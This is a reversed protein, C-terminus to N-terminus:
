VGLDFMDSFSIQDTDPLEDLLGLGSMLQVITDSVKCSRKFDDKSLFKKKSATDEIMEAAKEGLGQLTVLSPMLAGDVITFHRAKARYIDIPVFKFGRAYFELVLHMDDLEKDDRATRNVKPVSKNLALRRQLEERGLAMKEYDFGTARISFFAAYYALPHYVKFHAIRFAMVMYACAHAKPFMYKIKKCSDIYWQPVDNDIMAQEMEPQLGKGKRVSEMTKFALGPELGKSILYIMIDDRTCIATEITCDGNKIYDSANNTWVDTGHSLGSIKVMDSFTKPKAEKLMQMVFNTGLEPLGLCGLDIGDIDKPDAGIAETSAFLSLVKPDDMPITKVDIGTLDELMRVMTPDDHGLIDLKLLNHDISHYEFHTTIIPSTLDNAPHQLPTFSFINEGHPLVVIGGPHQGSTRRVGVCGEAIREKEVSRLQIGREEYYKSVIGFATKEALTGITGARFTQGQGFIVETYDHAKSQYEGSFNLDIDPEKDGYFGLFTEFPINQGDKVLKRGCVPCDKDPLDFGSKNSYEKCVDSDFESYHCDPCYYHPPLPNIESIGAMTAVFSSGVSGRSGVLYGDENSKWVLKQAIIYMVAFGNKIISDLEHELRSSVAEPLVDGYMSHAKNECIERLTKDSDEIVPPCKDPRVPDIKEISDFIQNPYEVVVEYARKEGLYACESLMEDTTHLFLPAQNDADKFGKSTMLIRRYVEDEPDLFHVDCTAVCPKNDRIALDSIKMNVRKLDDFSNVDPFRQDNIMYANNGVQQIEYYDYFSAIRDVEEQPKNHVIARFLEGAECASGVIIGERNERLLSKPIRPYRGFYKLHAYSVLKYLNVRGTDNKCLLIIHHSPMHRIDEESYTGDEGRTFTRGKEDTVSDVEDDVIYGECGYVIKFNKAAEQLEEPIKKKDHLAHFAVPFAQVVGHDTLAIGRHGWELARRILVDPPIVGDMDSMQTHAHLEVRKVEADDRRKKRFDKISRIGQVSQVTVEKDYSDYDVIGKLMIFKGKKLKSLVADKDEPTLFIKGRISDTFDTIAFNVLIKGTRTERDECARVMGRVVVQGVAEALESLKIPEGEFNRGYFIDPDPPLSNASKWKSNAGKRKYDKQDGKGPKKEPEKAKKDEEANKEVPAPGSAAEGQPNADTKAEAAMAFIESTGATSAAPASDTDDDPLLDDFWDDVAPSVLDENEAKNAGMPEEKRIVRVTEDRRSKDRSVAEHYKFDVKVDIGFHDKWHDIIMGALISQKERAIYNEEIDLTIVCDQASVQANRYITALLASEVAIEEAMYLRYKEWMAKFDTHDEFDFKVKLSVLRGAKSFVSDFLAKEMSAIQLGTIYKDSVAHVVVDDADPLATVSSVTAKSFVNRLEKDTELTPFADFFLM